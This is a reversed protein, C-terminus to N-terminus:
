IRLATSLPRNELSWERGPEQGSRTSSTLPALQYCAVSTAQGAVTDVSSRGGDEQLFAGVGPVVRDCSSDASMTLANTSRGHDCGITAAAQPDCWVSCLLSADPGIALSLVIALLAIRFVHRERTRLALAAGAQPLLSPAFGRTKSPEGRGSWAVQPIEGAPASFEATCPLPQPAFARRVRRGIEANAAGSPARV